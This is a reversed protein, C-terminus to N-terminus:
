PIPATNGIQSCKTAIAAPRQADIIVTDDYTDAFGSFALSMGEHPLIAGHGVDM